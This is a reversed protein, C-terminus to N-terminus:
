SAYAWIAGSGFGNRNVGGKRLVEKKSRKGLEELKKRLNELSSEFKARAGPPLFRKAQNLEDRLKKMAKQTEREREQARTAEASANASQNLMWAQLLADYFKRLERLQREAECGSLMARAKQMADDGYPVLYDSAPEETRLAWAAPLLFSAEFPILRLSASAASTGTSEAKKQTGEDQGLVNQAFYTPAEFMPQRSAFTQLEWSDGVPSVSDSDLFRSSAVPEAPQPLTTADSHDAFGTRPRGADMKGAQEGAYDRAFIVPVDLLNIDNMFKGGRDDRFTITMTSDNAIQHLGLFFTEGNSHTAPLLDHIYFQPGGQASKSLVIERDGLAMRIETVEPGLSAHVQVTYSFRGGMVESLVQMGEIGNTGKLGYWALDIQDGAASELRMDFRALEVGRGHLRM